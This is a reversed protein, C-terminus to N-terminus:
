TNFTNELILTNGWLFCQPESDWRLGDAHYLMEEIDM